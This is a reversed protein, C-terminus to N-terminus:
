KPSLLTMECIIQPRIKKPIPAKIRIYLAILIYFNYRDTLFVNTGDKEYLVLLPRSLVFIEVM